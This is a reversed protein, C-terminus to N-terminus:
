LQFVRDAVHQTPWLQCNVANIFGFIIQMVEIAVGISIWYSFIHTWLMNALFNVGFPWETRTVGYNSPMFLNLVASVRNLCKAHIVFTWSLQNCDIFLAWVLWLACFTAVMVKTAIWHINSEDCCLFSSDSWEDIPLSFTKRNALFCNWVNAFCNSEKAM